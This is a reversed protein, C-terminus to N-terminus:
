KKTNVREREILNYLAEEDTKSLKEIQKNRKRESLDEMIKMIVPTESEVLESIENFFDQMTIGHKFCSIRLASHSSGKINFHLSKRSEVKELFGTKL